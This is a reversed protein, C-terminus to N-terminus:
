PKPARRRHPLPEPLSRCRCRFASRRVDSSFSHCCCSRSNTVCPSPQREIADNPKSGTRTLQGLFPGVLGVERFYAAATQPDRRRYDRDLRGDYWHRALWWLTALDMVAGRQNGTVALWQDVCEESCFIRQNGCAHIVDDWVRAMPVLFHAVQLGGPPGLRNVNWAHGMGCAPCTTAVLVSPEDSLLAPMAFADWACGGWWLTRGGMVSFGLPITAFPHAMLVRHHGDLVLHRAAALTELTERVERTRVGFHEALSSADPSRGTKALHGYIALRVDEADLTSRDRGKTGVRRKGVRSCYRTLRLIAPVM